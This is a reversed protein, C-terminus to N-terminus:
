YGYLIPYESFEMASIEGETDRKFCAEPNYSKRDRICLMSWDHPPIMVHYCLRVEHKETLYTYHEVILTQPYTAYVDLPNSFIESYGPQNKVIWDKFQDLKSNSNEINEGWEYIHVKLTKTKEIGDHKSILNIEHVGITVKETPAITIDFVSDTKKLEAPFTANLNPESELRLQVIGSFDEDTVMKIVFIGGGKPYSRISDYKAILQYDGKDPVVPNKDTQCSTIVYFLLAFLFFFIRNFHNPQTNM